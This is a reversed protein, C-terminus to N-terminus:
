LRLGLQYAWYLHLGCSLDHAFIKTGCVLVTAIYAIERWQNRNWIGVSCNLTANYATCIDYKREAWMSEVPIALRYTKATLLFACVPIQVRHLTAIEFFRRIEKRRWTPKLKHGKVYSRFVHEMIYAKETVKMINWSDSLGLVCLPFNIVKQCTAVRM